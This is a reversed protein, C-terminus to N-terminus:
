FRLFVVKIIVKFYLNYFRGFSYTCLVFTFDREFQFVMWCFQILVFVRLLQNLTRCMNDYM